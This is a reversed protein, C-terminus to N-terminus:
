SSQNGVSGARLKKDATCIAGCNYKKELNLIKGFDNHVFQNYKLPPDQLWYFFNIKKKCLNNFFIDSFHTESTKSRFKLLEILM